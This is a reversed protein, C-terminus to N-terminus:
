PTSGSQNSAGHNGLPIGLISPDDIFKVLKDPDLKAQAVFADRANRTVILLKIDKKAQQVYISTWQGNRRSHFQMMPRWYPTVAQQMSALLGAEDLHAPTELDRLITYKLNKVGAPRVVKVAMRSLMGLGYLSQRHAKYNTRVHEVLLSFGRDKASVQVPCLALTAALASRILYRSSNRM